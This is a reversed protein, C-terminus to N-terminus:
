RCFVFQYLQENAKADDFKRAWAFRGRANRNYVITAIPSPSDEESLRRYPM